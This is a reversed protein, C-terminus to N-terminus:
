PVVPAKLEKTLSLLDGPNKMNKAIYEGLAEITKTFQNQKAGEHFCEFVHGNMEVTHGKFNSVSTRATNSRGGRGRGFGRGRGGERGRGRGSNTTAATNPGTSPTGKAEDLM